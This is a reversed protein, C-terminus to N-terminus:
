IIKKIYERVVETDSWPTEHMGDLNMTKEHGKGFFVVTDDKQAVKTIAFEIAKKRDPIRIFMSNGYKTDSDQLASKYNQLTFEIANCNLAGDSISDVIDNINESRPDESTIISIDALMASIGGMIPRKFRDREGACGFVSILRGLTEKRLYKLAKELSDPTHAFDVVVRFPQGEVLEELRGEPLKFTSLTALAKNKSIGFYSVAKISAELNINNFEGPLEDLYTRKPSIVRHRGSKIFKMKVQKYNKFNKHYDLHEPYINTLVTVEFQIGAIREQDIGHSSVELVAYKCGSIVMESLLKNLTLTEPNTVHSGTDFVRNNIEARITSVMGIKFGCSKMIHYILHVTTTKGKTGTVGIIKLKQSPFGHWSAALCAFSKRPDKVVILSIGKDLELKKRTVIAVAGNKIASNIFEHGDFSAGKIAVFLGGKVVKRSDDFIGYIETNLQGVFYKIQKGCDKSRLSQTLIKLKM